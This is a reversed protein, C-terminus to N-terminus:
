HLYLMNRWYKWISSHFYVDSSCISKLIVNESKVIRQMFKYVLSRVVEKCTPTKRSVFMFSASCWKNERCLIRFVNNYAVYVKNIGSQSHNWWLHSTYMSCCYSKFLTIKVDESCM